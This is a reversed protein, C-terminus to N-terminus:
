WVSTGVLFCIELGITDVLWGTTDGRCCIEFGTTGFICFIVLGTTLLVNAYM